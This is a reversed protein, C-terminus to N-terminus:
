SYSIPRHAVRLETDGRWLLLRDDEAHLVLHTPMPPEADPYQTVWLLCIPCGSSRECDTERCNRATLLSWSLGHVGTAPPRDSTLSTRYPPPSAVSSGAAPRPSGPSPRRRSRPKRLGQDDDRAPGPRLQLPPSRRPARHPAAEPGRRHSASACGPTTRGSRRDRRRRRKRGGASCTSFSEAPDVDPWCRQRRHTMRVSGVVGDDSRDM